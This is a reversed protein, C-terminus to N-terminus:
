FILIMVMKLNDILTGTLDKINSGEPPQTVTGEGQIYAVKHSSQGNSYPPLLKILSKTTPWLHSTVKKKNEPHSRSSIQVFFIPQVSALGRPSPVNLCETLLWANLTEAMGCWSCDHSHLFYIACWFNSVFSLWMCVVYASIHSVGPSNEGLIYACLYM